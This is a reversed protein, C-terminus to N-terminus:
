PEDRVHKWTVYNICDWITQRHVGFMRGLCGVCLDYQQHLKRMEKVKAATLKAAHHHEGRQSLSRM